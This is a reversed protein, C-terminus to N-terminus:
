VTIAYFVAGLPVMLLVCEDMAAAFRAPERAEGPFVVLEGLRAHHRENDEGGHDAHEQGRRSRQRQRAQQEAREADCEGGTRRGRNVLNEVQM